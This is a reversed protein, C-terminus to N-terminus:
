RLLERLMREPHNLFERTVVYHETDTYEVPHIGDDDLLYILAGPYAMLIPSHTAVIFQSRLRVLDRMRALAALQRTPSLAAEPEDLLYLGGGGFRETLLQWFSEGHSREHLSGGGYDERIPRGLAPLTAMDTRDLEEVATAVNYFSEARLFYADNARGAREVHLARHLESHTERTAFHLSRGGGEPNLGWAAAIAELLTSKGTGNEGVLFTVEPHFVMRRLGRVAPLGFPYGGSAAAGPELRVAHLYPASAM